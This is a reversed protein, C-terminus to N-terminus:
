LSVAPAVGGGPARLDQASPHGIQQEDRGEQRLGRRDRGRGVGVVHRLADVVGPAAHEGVELAHHGLEGSRVDDEDALLVVIRAGVPELLSQHRPQPSPADGRGDRELHEFAVDLARQIAVQGARDALRLEQLLAPGPRAVGGVIAREDFHRLAFAPRHYGRVHRSPDGRADGFRSRRRDLLQRRGIPQQHGRLQLTRVVRVEGPEALRHVSV